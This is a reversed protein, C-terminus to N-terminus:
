GGSFRGFYGRVGGAWGGDAPAYLRGVDQLSRLNRYPGKPNGLVRAAQMISDRVTPMAAPANNQYTGMANNSKVLADSTGGNTAQTAIAALFNPNVNNLRGAEAFDQAYPKLGEPLRNAMNPSDVFGGLEPDPKMISYAMNKAAAARFGTPIVQSFRKYVDQDTAQPNEALYQSLQGRVSSELKMVQLAKDKDYNDRAIANGNFALAPTGDNNLLISRAKWPVAGHEPNFVGDLLRDAYQVNEPARKVQDPTAVGYKQFLKNVLEGGAQAGGYVYSDAAIRMFDTMDPDSDPDMGEIHHRLEVAKFAREDDSLTRTRAEAVAPVMENALKALEPNLFPNGTQYQKVGNPGTVDGGMLGVALQLAAKATGNKVAQQAVTRLQKTEEDDGDSPPHNDLFEQPHIQVLATKVQQGQKEQAAAADAKRAAEMGAYTDHFSQAQEPTIYRKNVATVLTTEFGKRDGKAIQDRLQGEYASGALRFAQKGGEFVTNSAVDSSFKSFNLGIRQRAASTLNDDNLLKPQLVQMRRAWEDDWTAPDPHSQKWTEFNGHEASMANSATMVQYDSTAEYKKEAFANMVSGAKQIAEGLTGLAEYPKAFAEPSATPMQAASSLKQAGQLVAGVDMQPYRQENLVPAAANPLPGPNQLM